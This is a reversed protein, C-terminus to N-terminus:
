HEQRTTQDETVGLAELYAREYERRLHGTDRSGALYRGELEGLIKLAQLAGVDGQEAAKGLWFKGLQHDIPAGSGAGYMAGLNYQADM